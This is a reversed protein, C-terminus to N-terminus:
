RLFMYLVFCLLVPLAFVIKDGIAGSPSLGLKKHDDVIDWSQDTGIEGALPYLYERLQFPNTGSIGAIWAFSCRVFQADCSSQMKSPEIREPEALSIFGGKADIRGNLTASAWRNNQKALWSSVQKTETM